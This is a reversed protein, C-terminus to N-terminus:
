KWLRLLITEVFIFIIALVVFWKWLSIGQDLQIIKSSIQQTTTNLLQFNSLKLEKMQLMLEEPSWISFDSEDRSFNVAIEQIDQEQYELQYIGENPWMMNMLVFENKSKRKLEPIWDTEGKRVHIVEDKLNSSTLNDLFVDIPKGSGITEYLSQKEKTQMIMQYFVAVFLAHEPLQSYELSLPMGLQFLKGSEISSLSLLTNGGQTKLLNQQIPGTLIPYHKNILPLDIKQNEDSKQLQKEFVRNYFAQQKDIKNLHIAVTDLSSFIPAKLEQMWQNLEDIKGTADSPILLVQGGNSLYQNIEKKLGSSITNLENLIILDQKKLDQYNVSKPQYVNWEVLSDNSFLHSLYANPDQQSIISVQFVDRVRFTFYFRDDFIIPYDELEIRANFNGTNQHTFTLKVIKSEFADMDMTIMAKQEEGVYLKLPINSQGKDGSNSLKVYVESVAYLLQVPNEFWISDISINNVPNNQLPIMRVLLNTDSAMQQSLRLNKQFDSLVYLISKPQNSTQSNQDRLMAERQLIDPFSQQLHVAQVEMVNQIMEKKNLWRHHRGFMDNTLLHFYDSNDYSDLISLTMNQAENLLTGKEGVHTMSFSNDLYISVYQHEQKSINSQDNPIMPHAFALVIAIITLIRFLLVILHKLESQKKTKKHISKLMQVNSFYIKRYRRFNFLHVLIPIAVAFLGYLINPHLFEM